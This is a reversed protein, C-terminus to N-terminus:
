SILKRLIKRLTLWKSDRLLSDLRRFWSFSSLNHPNWAFNVLSPQIYLKGGLDSIEFNFSVHESETFGLDNIKLSYRAREFIWRKYIALGGFASQVEIPSAHIPINRMKNWIAIQKASVRPISLLSELESAEQYCDGNCWHSSRLAYIDFYRGKQNAFLADWKLSIDLSKKLSKKSLARNRIDFDLVFIYNFDPTCSRVFDIYRNRCFVMREIRSQIETSLDGHTEYEFNSKASELKRLLRVTKDSSDSEVLFFKVEQFIGSLMRDVRNVERILTNEVDRVIGVVLVKSSQLDGLVEM